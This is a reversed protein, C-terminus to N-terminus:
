RVSMVVEFRYVSSNPEKQTYNFTVDKFGEAKKLSDIFGSILENELTLGTISLKKEAYTLKSIWIDEHILNGLSALVESFPKANNKSQGLQALKTELLTKKEALKTEQEAFDLQSSQMQTLETRSIRLNKEAGSAKQKYYSLAAWQPLVLAVLLILGAIAAVKPERMARELFIEINKKPPPPTLDLRKSKPLMSAFSLGGAAAFALSRESEEKKLIKLREPMKLNQFVDLKEIPVGLRVRLFLELNTLQAGGGALIVRDFKTIQSQSIQYAFNKFSHEIDIVLNELASILGYFVVSPEDEKNEIRGTNLITTSKKDMSWFGLGHGRKLEEARAEDVRCYQSLQQTLKRSTISLKKVYCIIGDRDVVVTTEDAGLDIWLITEPQAAAGRFRRHHVLSLPSVEVAQVRIGLKKFIDIKAQLTELRACIVTVRQQLPSGPGISREEWKIYGFRIKDLELDFPRLPRLKWYIADELEKETLVPFLFNYTQVESAPIGLICTSGVKNRALLEEVAKRQRAVADLPQSFAYPQEDIASIEFDGNPMHLLQLLKVSSTGFDFAASLRSISSGSKTGKFIFSRGSIGAPNFLSSIKKGKDGRAFVKEVINDPNKSKGM